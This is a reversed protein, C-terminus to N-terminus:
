VVALILVHNTDPQRFIDRRSKYDDMSIADEQNQLNLNAFCGM